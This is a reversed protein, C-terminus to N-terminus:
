FQNNENFQTLHPLSYLMRFSQGSKEQREFVSVRVLSLCKRLSTFDMKNCQVSSFSFLSQCYQLSSIDRLKGCTILNISVLNKCHEIGSLSTLKEMNDLTLFKLNICKKLKTLDTLDCQNLYLEVLNTCKDLGSLGDISQNIILSILNPCNLHRLGKNMTQLSLRKLKTCKNIPSIDAILGMGSLYLAELNTLYDLGELSTCEESELNLLKLKTCNRLFMLDEYDAITKIVLSELNTCIEFLNQDYENNNIDVYRLSKSLSTIMVAGRIFLDVLKPCESLSQLILVNEMEEDMIISLDRLQPCVGFKLVTINTNELKLKELSKNNELGEFSNFQVEKIDMETLNPMDSLDISIPNDIHECKLVVLSSCSSLGTIDRTESLKLYKLKSLGELNVRRVKKVKLNILNILNPMSNLDLPEVEGERTISLKTVKTLGLISRIIEDSLLGGYKLLTLNTTNKLIFIANETALPRSWRSWDVGLKLTTIGSLIKSMYQTKNKSKIDISEVFINLGVIKYKSLSKSYRIFEKLTFTKNSLDIPVAYKMFSMTKNIGFISNKDKNPMFSAILELVDPPLPVEKRPGSTKSESDSAESDSAESDSLEPESGKIDNDSSSTESNHRSM